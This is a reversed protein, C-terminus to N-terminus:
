ADITCGFLWGACALFAAVFFNLQVKRTILCNSAHTSPQFGADLSFTPIPFWLPEHHAAGLGGHDVGV